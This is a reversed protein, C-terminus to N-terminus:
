RGWSKVSLSRALVKLEYDAAEIGRSGEPFYACGLRIEDVLKRAEKVLQRKRAKFARTSGYQKVVHDPLKGSM